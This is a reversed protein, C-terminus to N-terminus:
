KVDISDAIAEVIVDNVLFNQGLSKKAKIHYKQLVEISV